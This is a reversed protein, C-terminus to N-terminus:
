VMDMADDDEEVEPEPQAEAAGSVVAWDLKAIGDAVMKNMQDRTCKLIRDDKPACNEPPLAFVFMGDDAKYRWFSTMKFTKTGVAIQHPGVKVPVNMPPRGRPAPAPPEVVPGGVVFPAEDLSMRFHTMNSFVTGTVPEVVCVGHDTPVVLADGAVIEAVDFGALIPTATTQGEEIHWGVVLTTTPDMGSEFAYLNANRVLVTGPVAPLVHNTKM